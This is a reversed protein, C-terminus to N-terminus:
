VIEVNRYFLDYRFRPISGRAEQMLCVPTGRVVGNRSKMCSSDDKSSKRWVRSFRAREPIPRKPYFFSAGPALIQVQTEQVVDLCAAVVGDWSKEYVIRKRRLRQRRCLSSFMSQAFFIYRFCPSSGADGTFLWPYAAM